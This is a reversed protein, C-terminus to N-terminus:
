LHNRRREARRPITMGYLNGASDIVVGTPQFGDGPGSPFNYLITETWQGDVGPTLEFVTGYENAGGGITTGYLNGKKDLVVPGEPGYGDTPSGYVFGHLVQFDYLMPSGAPASFALGLVALLLAAGVPWLLKRGRM